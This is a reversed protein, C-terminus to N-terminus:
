ELNNFHQAVFKSLFSGVLNSAVDKISTYASMLILAHPNYLNSLLSSPGSGMSRGFLIVDKNEYGLGGKEMPRIVHEFVSIANDGIKKASCSLKKNTDQEGNKIASSFFGYGPYEM